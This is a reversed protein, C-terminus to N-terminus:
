IADFPKYRQRKQRKLTVSVRDNAKQPFDKGNFLNLINPTPM